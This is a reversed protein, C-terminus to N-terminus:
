ILQKYIDLYGKVNNEWKFSFAYERQDTFAAIGKKYVEAM